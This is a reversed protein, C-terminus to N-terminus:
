KERLSRLSIKRLPCLTSLDRYELRLDRYELRVDRDAKPLFCQM